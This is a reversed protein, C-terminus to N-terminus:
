KGAAAMELKDVHLEGGAMSGTISVHHGEHGKVADPNAIAIVKKDSDTVFVAKAGGDLCKKTCAEAGEHAGKVGCKDDVIYGTMASGKSSGAKKSGAYLAVTFLVLFCGLLILSVRKM